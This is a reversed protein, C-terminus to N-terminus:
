RCKSRYCFISFVREYQILIKVFKLPMINYTDLVLMHNWICMMFFATSVLYLLQVVPHALLKWSIWVFLFTIFFFSFFINIILGM